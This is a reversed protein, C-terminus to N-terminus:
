ETIEKIKQYTTLLKISSKKLTEISVAIAGFCPLSLVIFSLFVFVYAAPSSVSTEQIIM